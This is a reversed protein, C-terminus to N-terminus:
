LTGEGNPHTHMVRRTEGVASRDGHGNESAVTRGHKFFLGHSDNHLLVHTNSRRHDRHVRLVLARHHEVRDRATRVERHLALRAAHERDSRQVVLSDAVVRQHNACHVSRASRRLHSERHQHLVHVLRRHAHRRIVRAGNPHILPRRHAREHRPHLHKVRLHLQALLRQGEGERAGHLVEGDRGVARDGHRPREVEPSVGTVEEHHGHLVTAGGDQGSDARDSQPDDVVVVRGNEVQVRGDDVNGLADSRKGGDREVDGDGVPIDSLLVDEEHVVGTDEGDVGVRSLQERLFRQVVLLARQEVHHDSHHVLAIRRQEVVGSEGDNHIVHILRGDEELVLKAELLVRRHVAGDARHMVRVFVVAHVSRHLADLVAM